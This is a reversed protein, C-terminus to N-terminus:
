RTAGHLVGLGAVDNQRGKCDNAENRGVSRGRDHLLQGELAQCPFGICDDPADDHVDTGM